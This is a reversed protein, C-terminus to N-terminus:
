AAAHQYPRGSIGRRGPGTSVAGRRRFVPVCRCHRPNRRASCGAANRAELAALAAADAEVADALRLLLASREGPTTRSWHDFAETAALVAAHVQAISASAITEMPSATRPNVLIEPEGEGAVFRGGILLGDPM